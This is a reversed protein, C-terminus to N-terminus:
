GTYIFYSGTLGLNDSLKLDVSLKSGQTFLNRFTTNLYVASKLDSDYHLGVRFYNTVKEIVRVFLNYKKDMPELKYTVREFFGSGYVRNIALELEEPTIISAENLQLKGRVLKSSVNRLGQIYIKVISLSDIRTNPISKPYEPFSSLSDALTKLQPLIERASREGRAILSDASNFSLINYENIDPVILIDCQKRENITSEVSQFSIAQNMIEVLTNLEQKSYLPSGVDIGIVIEAGMEKVDCVPLNRVLGGDVLLQGNIDIPIFASPISMSARIADPLFGDKLIVPEGTSINTAICCFPIPLLEFDEIHHVSLMLGSILNSVKQGAVLGKPLSIKIGSIPFSGIFKEKDEKEEISISRRSIKDYLLEDWDQELVLEELEDARYGIAYLGGVISGMSTGTIYDIEIGAEELVKLVGIHAFGRAGGGSLVLGVRPREPIESEAFCQSSFILLLVFVITKVYEGSVMEIM